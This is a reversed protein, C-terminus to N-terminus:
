EQQSVSLAHHLAQRAERLEHLIRNRRRTLLTTLEHETDSGPAAAVLADIPALLPVSPESLAPDHAYPRCQARNTAAQM